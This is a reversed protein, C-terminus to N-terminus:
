GRTLMYFIIFVIIGVVAGWAGTIAAERYNASRDDNTTTQNKPKPLNTYSQQVSSSASAFQGLAGASGSQMGEAPIDKVEHRREYLRESTIATAQEPSPVYSTAGVEPQYSAGQETPNSLESLKTDLSRPSEFITKEAVIPKTVSNHRDFVIESRIKQLQERQQKEFMAKESVVRDQAERLEELHQDVRAFKKNAAKRDRTDRRRALAYNLLHLGANRNENYIHTEYRAYNNNVITEHGGDGAGGGALVEIPPEEGPEDPGIEADGDDRGGGSDGGRREPMRRRLITEVSEPEAVPGDEDPLAAESSNDTPPAEPTNDAPDVPSNREAREVSSAEALPPEEDASGESRESHVSRPGYPPTPTTVSSTDEEAEDEVEANRMDPAVPPEEGNPTQLTESLPTTPLRDDGRNAALAVLTEESPNDQEPRTVPQIETLLPKTDKGNRKLIREFRFRTGSEGQGDESSDSREFYSSLRISKVKRKKSKSDSTAENDDDPREQYNFPRGEM